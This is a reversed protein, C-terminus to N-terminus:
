PALILFPVLTEPDPGPRALGLFRGTLSFLRCSDPADAPDTGSPAGQPLRSQIDGPMLSRGKQLRGEGTETLVVKPLGPLLAELPLLAEGARGEKILEEVRDASLARDVTLDGASLRRLGALHAGCGLVEGLTHALSRVYTGSGCRAEFEVVPPKFDVLRFAYVTVPRPPSTMPKHGRAWKYLPKGAVKKASYPPPAQLIEGEFARMAEVVAERGPLAGAASATPRGMADYTDTAVGLRIEGSYVKDHRSFLPFLKVARGVAVLLLGTAMPDLTGFHGVKQIGLCRRVRAVIDHSTAGRPKDVLILGDM